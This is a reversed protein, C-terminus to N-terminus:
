HTFHITSLYVLNDGLQLFIPEGNILLSITCFTSRIIGKLQFHSSKINRNDLRQM